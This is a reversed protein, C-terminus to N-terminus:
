ARALLTIHHLWARLPLQWGIMSPPKDTCSVATTGGCVLCLQALKEAHYISMVVTIMDTTRVQEIDRSTNLNQLLPATTQDATSAPVEM